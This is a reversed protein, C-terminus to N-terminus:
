FIMSEHALVCFLVSLDPAEIAAQLILAWCWLWPLPESATHMYGAGCFCGGKCDCWKRGM